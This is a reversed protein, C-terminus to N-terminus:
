IYLIEEMQSVFKKIEIIERISQAVAIMMDDSTGGIAINM